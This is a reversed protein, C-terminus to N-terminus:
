RVDKDKRQPKVQKTTLANAICHKISDVMYALKMDNTFSDWSIKM